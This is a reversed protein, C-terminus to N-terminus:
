KANQNFNIGKLKDLERISSYLENFCEKFYIKWQLSVKEEDKLEFIKPNNQFHIPCCFNIMLYPSLPFEIVAGETEIGGEVGCCNWLRAPNDSTIFPLTTKNKILIIRKDQLYKKYNEFDLIIRNQTKRINEPEKANDLKERLNESCKDCVEEKLKKPIEKIIERTYKSRLIQFTIFNILNEKEDESLNSLSEDQIIKKSIPSYDNESKSLIIEIEQKESMLNYFEKEYSIKDTKKEIISNEDKDFVFLFYKKRKKPNEPIVVRSHFNKLYVKPNTHQNKVKNEGM